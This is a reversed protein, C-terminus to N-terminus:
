AFLQRKKIIIYTGHLWLNKKWVKPWQQVGKSLFLLLSMTSILMHIHSIVLPWTFFWGISWFFCCRFRVHYLFLTQQVTLSSIRIIGASAFLLGFPCKAMLPSFHVIIVARTEGLSCLYVLVWFIEVLFLKFMECFFVLFINIVVVIGLGWLPLILLRADLLIIVLWPFLFVHNM